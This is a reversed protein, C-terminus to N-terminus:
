RIRHLCAAWQAGFTGGGRPLTPGNPRPKWKWRSCPIERRWLRGSQGQPEGQNRNFPYHPYLPRPTFRVVLRWWTGFNVPSHLWVKVKQICERNPCPSYQIKTTVYPLFQPTSVPQQECPWHLGCLTHLMVAVNFAGQQSTESGATPPVCQIGRRM